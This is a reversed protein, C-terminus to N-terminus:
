QDIERHNNYLNDLFSQVGPGYVSPYGDSQRCALVGPTSILIPFVDNESIRINGDTPFYGGGEGMIASVISAQISIEEYSARGAQLNSARYAMDWTVFPLPLPYVCAPLSLALAPALDWASDLDTLDTPMDTIPEIYPQWEILGDLTPAAQPTEITPMDQLPQMTATYTPIVEQTIVAQIVPPAIQTQTPQLIIPAEVVPQAKAIMVTPFVQPTPIPAAPQSPLNAKVFVLAIIFSIIKNMPGRDFWLWSNERM